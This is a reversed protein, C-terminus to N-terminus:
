FSRKKEVIIDIDETARSRGFLISVYGSVIVYRTYKELIKVFKIVFKDLNNIKKNKLFIRNKEYIMEM